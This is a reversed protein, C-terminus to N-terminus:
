SRTQIQTSRALQVLELVGSVLTPNNGLIIRLSATAIDHVLGELELQAAFHLRQPLIGPAPRGVRWVAFVCQTSTDSLGCGRPLVFQRGESVVVVFFCVSQVLDEALCAWRPM